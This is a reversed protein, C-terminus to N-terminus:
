ARRTPRVIASVATHADRESAPRWDGPVKGASKTEVRQRAAQVDGDALRRRLGEGEGEERERATGADRKSAPRWDAPVIEASMTEDGASMVEGGVFKTRMGGSDTAM